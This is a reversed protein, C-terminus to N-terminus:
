FIRGHIKTPVADLAAYVYPSRRFILRIANYNVDFQVNLRIDLTNTSLTTNKEKTM